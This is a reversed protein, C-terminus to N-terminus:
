DYSHTRHLMLGKWAALFQYLPKNFDLPWRSLDERTINPNNVTIGIRHVVVNGLKEVKPLDARYRLTVMHFEIDEVRDTIEKISAEAGSPFHPYYALSFILIKKM